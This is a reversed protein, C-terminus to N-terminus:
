QVGPLSAAHKRNRALACAGGGDPGARSEARRHLSRYWGPLPALEAKLWSPDEISPLLALGERFKARAAAEDGREQAVWTGRALAQLLGETNGLAEFLTAAEELARDAEEYEGQFLALHGIRLVATARDIDPISSDAISSTLWERGESSRRAEWFQWLSSALRSAAAADEAVLFSLALRVNALESDLRAIWRMQDPGMLGDEGRQGLLLFFASHRRRVDRAEDRASLRELAYERVTELMSFRPAGDVDMTTSLLSYEVLSTLNDLNAECVTEAADLTVGGSFAALSAFLRQEDLDLLEHSWDLTARLTQQRAPADRAGQTLLALREGLRDRLAEPSLVRIRAAALEIALPLGDLRGCIDAVAEHNTETLAFSANASRARVEFLTQADDLPLPPVLYGQEGSLRLPARSTALVTLDPAAALLDSVLPAAELLHELNDVCVLLEHRSLFAALTEELSQGGAEELGLAQAVASTAGGPDSVSALPVFCVGDRYSGAAQALVALALRTKGTGGPGTLTVLRAGGSLMECVADVETSRGVLDTPPIPVMTATGLQPM